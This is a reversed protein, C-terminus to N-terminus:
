QSLGIAEPPVPIYWSRHAIQGGISPIIAHHRQTSLRLEQNTPFGSLNKRTSWECALLLEEAFTSIPDIENQKTM